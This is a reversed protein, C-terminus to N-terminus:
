RSNNIAQRVELGLKVNGRKDVQGIKSNIFTSDSNPLYKGVSDCIGEYKTTDALYISYDNRILASYSCYTLGCDSGCGHVILTEKSILKGEKSYTVLIPYIDEAQGFYVLSYFDTTDALMGYGYITEDNVGTFFLSDASQKKIQFLHTSDINSGMSGTFFFPLSLLHFKKIYNDFSSNRVTTLKETRILNQNNNNTCSFFLITLSIISLLRAM